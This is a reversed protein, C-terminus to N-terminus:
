QNIILKGDSYADNIFQYTTNDIISAFNNYLKNIWFVPFLPTLLVFKDHVIYNYTGTNKGKSYLRYSVNIDVTDFFPIVFFTWMCINHYTGDYGHPFGGQAVNIEVYNDISSLIEEKYEIFEVGKHKLPPKYKYENLVTGVLSNNYKYKIKISQEPYQIADVDIEPHNTYISACGNLALTVVFILAKAKSKM